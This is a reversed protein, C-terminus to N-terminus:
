VRAFKLFPVYVSIKDRKNFIIIFIKSRSYKTCKQRNRTHMAHIEADEFKGNSSLYTFGAFTLM